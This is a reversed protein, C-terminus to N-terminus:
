PVPFGSRRRTGTIPVTDHINSMTHQICRAMTTRPSTARPVVTGSLAGTAAV